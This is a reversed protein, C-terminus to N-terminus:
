CGKALCGECGAVILGVPRTVLNNPGVTRHCFQCRPYKSTFYRKGIESFWEDIGSLWERFSRPAKGMRRDVVRSWFPM